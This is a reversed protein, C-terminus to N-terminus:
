VTEVCLQCPNEAAFELDALKKKAARYEEKLAAKQAASGVLPLKSLASRILKLKERVPATSDESDTPEATTPEGCSGCPCFM